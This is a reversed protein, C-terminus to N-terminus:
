VFFLSEKIYAVAKPPNNRYHHFALHNLINVRTTDKEKHNKLEIKLSDIVRNQACTVKTFFFLFFFILFFRILTNM